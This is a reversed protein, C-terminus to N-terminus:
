TRKVARAAREVSHGHLVLKAPAISPAIAPGDNSFLVENIQGKKDKLKSLKLKSSRAKLKKSALVRKTKKLFLAM